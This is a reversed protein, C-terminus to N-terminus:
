KILPPPPRLSSTGLLSPPPPTRSLRLGRIELCTLVCESGCLFEKSDAVYSLSIHVNFDLNHFIGTMM